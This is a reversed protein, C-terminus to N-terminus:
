SLEPLTGGPPIKVLLRQAYSKDLIILDTGKLKGRGLAVTTQEKTKGTLIHGSEWQAIVPIDM